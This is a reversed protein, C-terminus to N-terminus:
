SVVASSAALLMLRAGRVWRPAELGPPQGTARGRVAPNQWTVAAQVPILTTGRTLAALPEGACAGYVGCFFAGAGQNDNREPAIGGLVDLGRRLHRSVAARGSVGSLVYARPSSERRVSGDLLLWTDAGVPERLQGSVFWGPESFEGGAGGTCPFGRLQSNLLNTAGASLTVVRPAGAFYRTSVYGQGGICTSSSVIGELQFAGVRTPTVAIRLNVSTDGPNTSPVPDIRAEEVIPLAYLREQTRRLKGPDFREGPRYALRRRVDRERIPAEAAVQTPGFVAVPGPIVTLTVDATRAAPDQTAGAEVSAFAYGREAAANALVRESQELLPIAYLTGAHLPLAPARVAPQIADLGRVTVSRIRVPAGETVTFRVAVGGRAPRIEGAARADPYGWARYLSDIRAVDERVQITDLPARQRTGRVGLLCAPAYFPSRCSTERTHIVARVASEPLGRTGAVDVDRVQVAPSQARAPAALAVALVLGAVMGWPRSSM